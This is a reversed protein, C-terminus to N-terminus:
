PRWFGCNGSNTVVCKGSNTAFLHAWGDATPFRSYPRTLQTPGAALIPRRYVDFRRPRAPTFACGFSRQSAPGAHCLESAPDVRKRGHSGVCLAGSTQPDIVLLVSEWRVAGRRPSSCRPSRSLRRACAISARRLMLGRGSPRAQILPRSTPPLSARKACRSPEYSYRARDANQAAPSLHAGRSVPVRHSPL